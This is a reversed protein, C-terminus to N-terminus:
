IVLLLLGHFQAKLKALLFFKKLGIEVIDKVFINKYKPIGVHDGVKFKSDKENSDVNYKAYSDSKVDKSKMGIIRHFTNNYNDAIDDLVDFYVTNSVAIM